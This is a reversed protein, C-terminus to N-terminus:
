AGICEKTFNMIRSICDKFDFNAYSNKAIEYYEVKTNMWNERETLRIKDHGFIFTPVGQLLTYKPLSSQSGLAVKALQCEDITDQLDASEKVGNVYNSKKIEGINYSASNIGKTKIELDPFEDCLTEILTIYFSKPVNAYSMLPHKRHRPFILIKKKGELKKSYGYPKYIAKNLMLNRNCDFSFKGPIVYDSPLIKQFYKRLEKKKSPYLGFCNPEGTFKEYFDRPVGLILDVSDRYLCRRDPSTVMVLFYDTNKKLWKLHASLYMSWGLEGIDIYAIKM